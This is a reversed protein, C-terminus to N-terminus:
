LLCPREEHMEPASPAQMQDFGHATRGGEKPRYEIPSKLRATLDESLFPKLANSALFQPIELARNGSARGTMKYGFAATIGRTSLVRRGDSLVACPLVIGPIDVIEGAAVERPVCAATM